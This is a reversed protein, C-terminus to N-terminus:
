YNTEVNYWLDKIPKLKDSLKWYEGTHLRFKSGVHM